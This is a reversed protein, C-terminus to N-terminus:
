HHLDCGGACGELASCRRRMIVGRSRLLQALSGAEMRGAASLQRFPALRLMSRCAWLMRPNEFNPCGFRPALRLCRRTCRRGDRRFYVDEYEAAFPVAVFM